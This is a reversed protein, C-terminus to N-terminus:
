SAYEEDRRKNKREKLYTRYDDPYMDEVILLFENDAMLEYENKMFNYLMEYRDNFDMDELLQETFWEVLENKDLSM